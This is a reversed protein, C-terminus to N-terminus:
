SGGPRRINTKSSEEYNKPDEARWEGLVLSEDLYVEVSCLLKARCFDKSIRIFQIIKGEGLSSGLSIQDSGGAHSTRDGCM